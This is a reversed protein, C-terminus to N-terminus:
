PHRVGRGDLVARYGERYSPYALGFGSERLRANDCRKGTEPGVVSGPPAEAGLEAALFRLVDARDAPLNDVGLYIAAPERSMTTLHVIAGAADDRHIRNTFHPGAPVAARGGRAQDLLRGRGPGYIGGLRLVVVDDLAVQLVQESRLLAAATATAPDAPTDEDIWRGDDAAYVATSSVLLVRPPRACDRQIAILMNAAVDVYASQYAPESRQDASTALVVIDTGSPIRPVEASLDVKHARFSRPLVEPSRRLGLVSHGGALFRLGAETGLDGCGAIVVEM